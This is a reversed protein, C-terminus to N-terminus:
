RQSSSSFNNTATSYLNFSSHCSRFLSDLEQFFRDNHHFSISGLKLVNVRDSTSLSHLSAPTSKRVNTQPQLRLNCTSFSKNSSGFFYLTSEPKEPWSATLSLHFLLVSTSNCTPAPLHKLRHRCQHQSPESSCFLVRPTNTTRSM